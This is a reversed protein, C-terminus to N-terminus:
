AAKGEEATEDDQTLGLITRVTRPVLRRAAGALAAEAGAEGSDDVLAAGAEAAAAYEECPDPVLEVVRAAIREAFPDESLDLALVPVALRIKETVVARLFETVVEAFFTRYLLCLLEGFFGRGDSGGEAAALQERIEPHDELLRRGATTAARRIAADALTGGDGAVARTLEAVFADAPDEFAAGTGTALGAPGLAALTGMVEALREGAECATERLGFADEDGRCTEHLLDLYADAQTTLWVETGARGAQWRSLSEGLSGWRTGIGDGGHPGRWATSTGM